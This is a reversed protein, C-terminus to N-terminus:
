FLMLPETVLKRDLRALRHQLARQRSSSSQLPASTLAFSRATRPDRLRHEHHVALAEAASRVLRPPCRRLELLRRWAGAAEAYRRERRCLAAYGHMAEARSVEDGPLPTEDIGAARAFCRRANVVDGSRELLQGLGVAERATKLLPVGEDALQAARSTLMALSLLDLRNHEFVGVLPRADGTRVYQFYRTPAESGPVDDERVHGCVTAELTTLRCSSGGSGDDEDARWLRRAAHLMDLHPLGAFPTVRRHFLYRTEILPLDFSKGNFSVILDASAALTSLMDLLSREIAASSMFLQRVHFVCEDFWACGVVFAYTGAGGALGTTELDIFLARHGRSSGASGAAYGTLFTGCWRDHGPLVHDVLTMHGHRHGPRYSRDVVLIRHGGVDVWTGGLIEAVADAGARVACEVGVAASTPAEQMPRRSAPVAAVIDRLKDALSTM